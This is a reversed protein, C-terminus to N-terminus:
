QAVNLTLTGQCLGVTNSIEDEPPHLYVALSTRSLPHLFLLYLSTLAYARDCPNFIDIGITGISWRLVKELQCAACTQSQGMVGAHSECGDRVTTLQLLLLSAEYMGNKGQVAILLRLASPRDASTVPPWNNCKVIHHSRAHILIHKGVELHCFQLFFLFFAGPNIEDRM